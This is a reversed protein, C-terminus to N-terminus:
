AGCYIQSSCAAIHLLFDVFLKSFLLLSCAFLKFLSLFSLFEAVAQIRASLVKRMMRM